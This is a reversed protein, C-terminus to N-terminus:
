RERMDGYFILEWEGSPSKAFRRELGYNGLKTYIREIVMIEGVPELEQRYEGKSFDVRRHMKWSEPLWEVSQIEVRGDGVQVGKEGELPWVIHAIQYLSDAHFEEYFAMFGEPLGAMDNTVQINTDSQNKCAGWLLLSASVM